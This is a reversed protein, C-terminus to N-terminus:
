GSWPSGNNVKHDLHGLDHGKHMCDPPLPRM